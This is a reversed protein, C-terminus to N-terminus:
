ASPRLYGYVDFSVTLEPDSESEGARRRDQRTSIDLNDIFLLPQGTELEYLIRRLGEIGTTLRVRVIVQRFGGEEAATLVQTSALKGGSRDILTKVRNQLDAAVIAESGGRLYDDARGGARKMAELQEELAGLRAAVMRYRALAEQREAIEANVAAFQDILPQVILWYPLAVVLVLIGLALIRRTAPSM